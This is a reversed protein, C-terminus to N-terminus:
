FLGQGVKQVKGIMEGISKPTDISGMKGRQGTIGYDTFGRNFSKAPNPTFQLRITGSSTKRLKKEPLIKDLMQRYLGTINAVYDANKLRGEIKLSSIGADLLEGLYQSLNLDKLSLLYRSQCITEGDKDKLVTFNEALSRM